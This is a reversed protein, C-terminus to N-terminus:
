FAKGAGLLIGGRRVQRHVGTHASVWWDCEGQPICMIERAKDAVMLMWKAYRQGESRRGENYVPWDIHSDNRKGDPNNKSRPRKPNSITKNTNKSM